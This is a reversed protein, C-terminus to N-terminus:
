IQKAVAMIIVLTNHHHNQFGGDAVALMIQLQQLIDTHSVITKMSTQYSMLQAIEQRLNYVITQATKPLFTAEEGMSIM